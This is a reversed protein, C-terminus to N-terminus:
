QGGIHKRTNVILFYVFAVLLFYRFISSFPFYDDIFALDLKFSYSNFYKEPMVVNIVPRKKSVDFDKFLNYIDWPICFPFKKSLDIYLPSFDLTSTTPLDFDPIDTE